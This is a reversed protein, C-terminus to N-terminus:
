TGRVGRMLIRHTQKLLRNSIPLKELDEMAQNMAQVYNQVEQWDDRREPQIFAEKQVAEDINTRTGEIRSSQTGEKLVHMKIFFNVDPILQSYANLEGLKIDAQSLLLTLGADDVEWPLNIRNPEFSKYSFQQIRQGAKFSSVKM